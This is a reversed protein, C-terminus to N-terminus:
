HGRLNAPLRSSARLVGASRPGPTNKKKKKGNYFSGFERLPLRSSACLLVRSQRGRQVHALVKARHADSLLPPRSPLPESHYPYLSLSGPFPPFYIFLYIFAACIRENGTRLLIVLAFSCRVYVQARGRVEGM